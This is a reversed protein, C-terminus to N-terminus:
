ILSQDAQRNSSGVRVFVGERSGLSKVYHPRVPSPFVQVAVVQTRRWPLIEIEPLLRPVINDSILNALREEIALADIVGCVRRTKDEVGVLLVGGSTNAFAVLSRMVGEPSSLDRKIELSKGEHRKLLEILDM